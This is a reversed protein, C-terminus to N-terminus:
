ALSKCSDVVRTDILCHVDRTIQTLRHLRWPRRTFATNCANNRADLILGSCTNVRKEMVACRLTRIGSNKTAITKRVGCAGACADAIAAVGALEFTVTSVAPVTARAAVCTPVFTYCAVTTVGTPEARASFANTAVATAATAVASAARTAVSNAAM